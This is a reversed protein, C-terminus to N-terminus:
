DGLYNDIKEIINEEIDGVMGTEPEKKRDINLIAMPKTPDPRKRSYRFVRGPYQFKLMKDDVLTPHYNGVFEMGKASEFEDWQWENEPMSMRYSGGPTNVTRKTYKRGMLINGTPYDDDGVVGGTDPYGKTWTAENLFREMKDLINM